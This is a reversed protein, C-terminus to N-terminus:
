VSGVRRGARGPQGSRNSIGPASYLRKVCGKQGSESRRTLPKSESRESSQGFYRPGQISRYLPTALSAYLADLKLLLGPRLQLSLSEMNRRRRQHPLCIAQARKSLLPSTNQRQVASIRLGLGGTILWGPLSGGPYHAVRTILWKRVPYNVRM